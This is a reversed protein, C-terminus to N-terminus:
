HYPIFITDPRITKVVMAQLTIASRRTTVTVWDGERIEHEEALRPHIEVRPDPYQDTLEGIRRTQAGSLYQSVRGTTLLIPFNEDLPDGSPRWETVRFRCKGDPHFSEGGEILRPTGPHEPTPCPALVGGAAPGGERLHHRIIPWAAARRRGCRMWFKACPLSPSINGKAWAVRWNACFPATPAGQGNGQGTIM